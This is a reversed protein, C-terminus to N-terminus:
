VTWLFRMCYSLESEILLWLGDSLEGSSVGRDEWRHGLLQFLNSLSTTSVQLCDLDSKIPSQPSSVAPPNSLIVKLAGKRDSANQPTTLGKSLVCLVERVQLELLLPKGEM